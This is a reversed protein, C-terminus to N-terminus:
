QWELAGKKCAYVFGLIVIGMFVAMEIYGFTGLTRSVVAWPFLFILEVDFLMFLMGVLYFKISLKGSPLQFPEKGCEFPEMKAPTPNKPGLMSALLIFASALMAALAFM